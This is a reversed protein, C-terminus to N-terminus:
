WTRNERRYQRVADEGCAEICAEQAIDSLLDKLFSRMIGNDDVKMIKMEPNSKRKTVMAMVFYRIPLCFRM